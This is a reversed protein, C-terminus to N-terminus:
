SAVETVLGELLLKYLTSCVRFASEQTETIIQAVSKSGNLRSLYQWEDASIIRESKARGLQHNLVFIADTSPIARAIQKWVEIRQDAQSVLSASDSAYNTGLKHLRNTEFEFNSETLILLEFLANLNYEHLLRKLYRAGKPELQIAQEIVSGAAEDSAFIDEISEQSLSDLNFLVSRLSGSGASKALYISGDNFWVEGNSELKLVGTLRDSGIRNLLNKLGTDKLAGKLPVLSDKLEM